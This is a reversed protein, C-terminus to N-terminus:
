EEDSSDVLWSLIHKKKQPKPVETAKPAEPAKPPAEDEIKQIEAFLKMVSMERAIQVPDEGKGRLGALITALEIKSRTM